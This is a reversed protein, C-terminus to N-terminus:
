QLLLDVGYFGEWRPLRATRRYGVVANREEGEKKGNKLVVSRSFLQSAELDDRCESECIIAWFRAETEARRVM